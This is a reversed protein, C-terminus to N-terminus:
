VCAGQWGGQEHLVDHDGGVRSFGGQIFLPGKGLPFWRHQRFPRDSRARYAAATHIAAAPSRIVHLQIRLLHSSSPAAQVQFGDVRLAPYAM